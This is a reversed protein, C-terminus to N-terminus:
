FEAWVRFLLRANNAATFAQGIVPVAYVLAGNAYNYL